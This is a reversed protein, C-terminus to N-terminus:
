LKFIDTGFNKASWGAPWGQSRGPKFKYIVRAFGVNEILFCCVCLTKMPTSYNTWRFNSSARLLANTKWFECIKNNNNNNNNNNNKGPFSGPQGAPQGPLQGARAPWSANSNCLSSSKIGYPSRPWPPSHPPPPLPPTVQGGPLAALAWFIM